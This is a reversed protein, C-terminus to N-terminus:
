FCYSFHWLNIKSFYLFFFNKKLAQSKLTGEQFNKIKPSSLEMKEFYLFHKLIPKKIKRAQFTAEQIKKNRPNSLRM